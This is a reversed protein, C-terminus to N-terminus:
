NKEILAEIIAKFDERKAAEVLEPSSHIVSDDFDILLKLLSKGWKKEFAERYTRVREDTGEKSEGGAWTSKGSFHIVYSQLAYKVDFGSQYARLCYDNDEAGGKGFGEDLPGVTQYVSYPIKVCFFPLSIVKKYGQLKARHMEAVEKVINQKGLYDSLKLVNAWKVGGHEYQVERNSLPSIISPEDILLPNIWNETFVVDNNLFFLDAQTEKAMGMVFNVNAAFSKPEKNKFIELYPSFWSADEEFSEDNDILILRENPTAKTTRFFSKIAYSTYEWSDRTTVMGFIKM